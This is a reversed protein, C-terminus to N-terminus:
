DLCSALRAVAELPRAAAHVARWRGAQSRDLRWQVAFRHTVDHGCRDRDVATLRLSVLAAAPGAPRASLHSASQRVTTAFGRRWADLSGHRARLDAALRPWAAEFRGQALDAYFARVYDTAATLDAPAAAGSAPAARQVVPTPAIEGAAPTPAPDPATPPPAVDGAAPTPAPDPATPPPVVDGVTPTPAPDPATSPAAVDGAAPTPAPDQAVPPVVDRAAVPDLTSQGPADPVDQVSCRACAGGATAFIAIFMVTALAALAFACTRPAM